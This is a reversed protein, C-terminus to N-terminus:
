RSNSEKFITKWNNNNFKLKKLTWFTNKANQKTVKRKIIEYFFWIPQKQMVQNQLYKRVTKNQASDEDFMNLFNEDFTFNTQKFSQNVIM